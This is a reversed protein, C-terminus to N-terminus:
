QCDEPAPQGDRASPIRRLNALLNLIEEDVAAPDSLTQAMEHRVQRAFAARLDHLAKKYAEVSLGLAAAAEAQPGPLERDHLPLYARLRDFRVAEGRDAYQCRVAARAHTLVAFAWDVDFGAEPDPAPPERAFCGEADRLADLSVAGNLVERRDRKWANIMFNRCVARLFAGLSGRQPDAAALVGKELVHGFFEQTLDRAAEEELEPGLGKLRIRRRIFAYVPYYYRQCLGALAARGAADNPCAAARVISWDTSPWSRDGPIWPPPSM